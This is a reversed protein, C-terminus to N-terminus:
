QRDRVLCTSDYSGGQTDGRKASKAEFIIAPLMSKGSGLPIGGDTRARLAETVKNTGPVPGFQLTQEFADAVCVPIRTPPQILTAIAAIFTVLFDVVM